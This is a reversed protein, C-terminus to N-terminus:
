IMNINEIASINLKKAAYSSLPKTDYNLPLSLSTIRIM